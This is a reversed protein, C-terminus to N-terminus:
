RATTAVNEAPGLGYQALIAQGAASGIFERFADCGARNQAHGMILGVQELPPYADSPVEWFRGRESRGPAAVLSLATIAVDAGGTEAFQMAQAVNEGLVLREAVQATLGYHAFAAQAARGYPAHRPNAIAVKRVRPDLVIRIGEHEPTLPSDARVWVAIRGQAYPFQDDAAALGQEVLRRPYERDASLFVDFPAQQALQAYFNGSSGYTVRVESEPHAAEFEAALAELAYSLDAAAAIRLVSRHAARDAPNEAAPRCGAGSVVLGLLGLGLRWCWRRYTDAAAPRNWPRSAARTKPSLIKRKM